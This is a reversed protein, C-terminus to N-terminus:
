CGNNQKRGSEIGCHVLNAAMACRPFPSNYEAALGPAWKKSFLLITLTYLINFSQMLLSCLMYRQFMYLTINLTIRCVCGFCLWQGQKEVTIIVFNVWKLGGDLLSTVLILSVNQISHCLLDKENLQYILRHIYRRNDNRIKANFLGLKM